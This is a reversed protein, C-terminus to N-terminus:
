RPARRRLRSMVLVTATSLLAPVGLGLVLFAQWSGIRDTMWGFNMGFFAAGLTLPLFITNVLTLQETILSSQQSLEDGAADHLRRALRSVYAFRQGAVTLQRTSPLCVRLVDEDDDVLRHQAEFVADVAMLTRRVVLAERRQRQSLFTSREGLVAQREVAFAELHEESIRGVETLLVALAATPAAPAALAAVADDPVPRETVVLLGRGCCLARVSTLSAEDGVAALSVALVETEGDGLVVAAPRSGPRAARWSGVGGVGEVGLLRLAHDVLEADARDALVVVPGADLREALQEVSSVVLM